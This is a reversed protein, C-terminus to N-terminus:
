AGEMEPRRHHTELTMQSIEANTRLAAQAVANALAAADPGSVELLHPSSPEDITLGSVCADTSLGEALTRAQASVIRLAVLPVKDSSIKADSASLVRGNKLMLVSASNLTCSSHPSVSPAAILVVAGTAAATHLHHEIKHPSLGLVFPEFLSLLKTRPTALAILLAIVRAERISLHQCPRKTWELLDWQALLGAPDQDSQKLRLVRELLSEVTVRPLHVRAPLTGLEAPSAARHLTVDNLTVTGRRPRSLGSALDIVSAAAAPENGLLWHVGPHLSVTCDLLPGSQVTSFSLNSM